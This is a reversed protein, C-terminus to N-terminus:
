CGQPAIDEIARIHKIHKTNDETPVQGMKTALESGLILRKWLQSPDCVYYSVRTRRRLKLTSGTVVLQDPSSALGPGGKGLERGDTAVCGPKDHLM